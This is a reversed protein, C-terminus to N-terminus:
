SEKVISYHPIFNDKKVNMQAICHLAPSLTSFLYLRKKTEETRSMGMHDLITASLQETFAVSFLRCRHNVVM